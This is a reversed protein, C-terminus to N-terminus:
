VEVSEVAPVAVLAELLGTEIEVARCPLRAHIEFEVGEV